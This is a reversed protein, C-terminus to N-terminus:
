LGSEIGTTTRFFELSLSEYKNASSKLVTQLLRTKQLNNSARM